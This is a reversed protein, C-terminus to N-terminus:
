DLDTRKILTMELRVPFSYVKGTVSTETRGPPGREGARRVWCRTTPRQHQRAVRGLHRCRTGRLVAPAHGSPGLQAPAGARPAAPCRRSSRLM